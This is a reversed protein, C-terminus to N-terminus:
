AIYVAASAIVSLIMAAVLAGAVIRTVIKKGKGKAM